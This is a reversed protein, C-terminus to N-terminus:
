VWTQGINWHEKILVKYEDDSLNFEQVIKDIAEPYDNIWEGVCIEFIETDINYFIRGRPKDQYAGIFDGQGNNKFKQKNYEKRWVRDHTESCSIKNGGCNPRDYDDLSHKIVGFLKQQSRNYWFLGVKPSDDINHNEEMFSLMNNYDKDSVEILLDKLSKM